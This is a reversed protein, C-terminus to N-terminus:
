EVLQPLNEDLWEYVPTNDRIVTAYLGLGYAADTGQVDDTMLFDLHTAVIEPDDFYIANLIASLSLEIVWACRSRVIPTRNNVNAM